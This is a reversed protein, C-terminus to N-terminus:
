PINSAFTPKYYMLLYLPNLSKTPIYSLLKERHNLNLELNIANRFESNFGVFDSLGSYKSM